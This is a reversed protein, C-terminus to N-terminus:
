QMFPTASFNRDVYSTRSRLAVAFNGAL